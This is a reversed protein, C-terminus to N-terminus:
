CVGMLSLQRRRQGARKVHWKWGDSGSTICVFWIANGNTFSVIDSMQRGAHVLQFKKLYSDIVKLKIFSFVHFVSGHLSKALRPLPAPIPPKTYIPLRAINKM